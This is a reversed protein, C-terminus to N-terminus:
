WYGHNRPQYQPAPIMDSPCPQTMNAGAGTDQKGIMRQWIKTFALGMATRLPLQRRCFPFAFQKPRLLHQLMECGSVRDKQIFRILFDLFTAQLM